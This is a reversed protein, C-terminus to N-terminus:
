QEISDEVTHYDEATWDPVSFCYFWTEDGEIRHKVGPNITITEGEKLDTPQGDLFVRLSGKLIEYEETTREHWHETSADAVVVAVDRESDVLKRDIEAVIETVKGDPGPNEKINADEYKAALEKKVKEINM